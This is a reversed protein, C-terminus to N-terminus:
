NTRRSAGGSKREGEVTAIVSAAAAGILAGAALWDLRHQSDLGLLLGLAGAVGLVSGARQSVLARPALREETRKIKYNAKALTRRLDAFASELEHEIDLTPHEM